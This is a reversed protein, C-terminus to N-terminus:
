ILNLCFQLLPVQHSTTSHGFSPQLIHSKSIGVTQKNFSLNQQLEHLDDLLEHEDKIGGIGDKYLKARTVKECEERYKCFAPGKKMAHKTYVAVLEKVRSNDFKSRSDM